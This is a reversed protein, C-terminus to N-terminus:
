VAQGSWSACQGTTSRVRSGLGVVVAGKCVATTGWPKQPRQHGCTLAFWGTHLCSLGPASSVEFFVATQKIYKLADTDVPVALLALTLLLDLISAAEM